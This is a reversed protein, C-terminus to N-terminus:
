MPVSDAISTGVFDDGQFGIRGPLRAFGDVGMDPLVLEALPLAPSRDIPGESGSPEQVEELDHAPDEVRVVGATGVDRQRFPVASGTRTASVHHTLIVLVAAIATAVSEAAFAQSRADAAFQKATVRAGIVAPGALLRDAGAALLATAV